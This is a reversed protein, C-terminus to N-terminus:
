WLHACIKIFIKLPTCFVLIQKPNPKFFRVIWFISMRESPKGIYVAHLRGWIFTFLLLKIQMSHASLSSKLIGSWWDGRLSKTSQVDSLNLMSFLSLLNLSLQSYSNVHLLTCYATPTLQPPYPAGTQHWYVLNVLQGTTPTMTARARRRANYQAAQRHVRNLQRIVPLIHVDDWSWWSTNRNRRYETTIRGVSLRM